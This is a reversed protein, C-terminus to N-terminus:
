LLLPDQRSGGNQAVPGKEDPEPTERVVSGDNIGDLQLQNTSQSIREISDSGEEDRRELPDNGEGPAPATSRQVKKRPHDDEDMQTRLASDVPRGERQGHKPHESNFSSRSIEEL